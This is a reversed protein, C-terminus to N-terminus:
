RMGAGVIDCAITYLLQGDSASSSVRVWNTGDSSTLIMNNNGVAVITTNDTAVAQLNTTGVVGPMTSATFNIGDPSHAIRGRAGVGIWM